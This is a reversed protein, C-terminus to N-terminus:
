KDLDVGASKLLDINDQYPNPYLMTLIRDIYQDDGVKTLTLGFDSLLKKSIDPPLNLDLCIKIATEKSPKSVGNKIKSFASESIGIDGALEKNNVNRWKMLIELNKHGYNGLKSFVENEDNVMEKWRKTQAEPTYNAYKGCFKTKVEIIPKERSLYCVSFLAKDFNKNNTELDFVLCCEDMHARAYDTLKGKEVYLPANFVFHNEAFIYNGSEIKEKLAPDLFSQMCADNFSITFTQNLEISDDKFSYPRVYHDDVYNFTGIADKYGLEILRIKASQISVGFDSALEKIVDEMVDCKHINRDPNEKTLRAIHKTIYDDAKAKFPELPMLIRPTLQNAQWEIKGETKFECNENELLACSVCSIENNYLHALKYVLNHFYYHVCEHVITNNTSGLNGKPNIVIKKDDFYIRGFISDNDDISKIEVTLGLTSALKYPDVAIPKENLRTLTLAEKYFKNLFENAVQELKGKKMNPALCDSLIPEVKYGQIYDSVTLVEFDKLDKDLSAKCECLLWQRKLAYSDYHHDGDQIYYTVNIAVDMYLINNDQCKTAWLQQITVDDITVEGLQHLQKSDTNLNEKYSEAAAWLKNDFVEQVYSKFSLTKTEQM